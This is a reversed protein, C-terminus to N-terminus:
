RPANTPVLGWPAAGAPCVFVRGAIAEDCALRLVAEAVAEVPVLEPPGEWRDDPTRAREAVLAETAVWDPCIANVRIGEAGLGGLSGTLRNVAAKAAAYEPSAYPEWGLGAVSSVNVVAGGRERMTGIALQTGLAVGGLNVALTRQWHAPEADPFHPALTGGANNVLIDLPGLAAAREFVARLERDQAVDAPLFAAASLEAATEAGRAEDTDCLVLTAGGTGLRSAAAKGIGTAAGTVIAVTGALDPARWDPDLPELDGYDSPAWM